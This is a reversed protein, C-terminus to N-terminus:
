GLGDNQCPAPTGKTPYRTCSPRAPCQPPPRTAGARAAVSPGPGPRRRTPLTAGHPDGADVPQQVRRLGVGETGDQPVHEPPATDLSTPTPQDGGQGRGLPAGGGGGPPLRRM